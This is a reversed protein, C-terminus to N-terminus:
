NKHSLTLINKVAWQIHKHTNEWGSLRSRLVHGESDWVCDGSPLCLSETQGRLTKAQSRTFLDFHELGKEKLQTQRIGDNPPLVKFELCGDEVVQGAADHYDIRKCSNIICYPLNRYLFTLILSSRTWNYWCRAMGGTLSKKQKRIFFGNLHLFWINHM